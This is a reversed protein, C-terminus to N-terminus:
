EAEEEQEIRPIWTGEIDQYEVFRASPYQAFIAYAARVIDGASALGQWSQTTIWNDGGDVTIDFHTVIHNYLKPREVILTEVRWGVEILKDM